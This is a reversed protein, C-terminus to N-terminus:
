QGSKTWVKFILDQFRELSFVKSKTKNQDPKTGTPGAYDQTHKISDLKTRQQVAHEQLIQSLEITIQM